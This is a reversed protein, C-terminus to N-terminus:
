NIGHIKTGIFFVGMIYKRAWHVKRGKKEIHKKNGIEGSEGKKQDQNSTHYLKRRSM